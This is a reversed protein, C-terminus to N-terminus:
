GTIVDGDAGASGTILAAVRVAGGEGEVGSANRRAVARTGPDAAHPARLLAPVRDPDRPQRAGGRRRHRRCARDGSRRPTGGIGQDGEDRAPWAPDRPDLRGRFALHHRPVAVRDRPRQDGRFGRRRPQRQREHRSTRLGIEPRSPTVEHSSAATMAAIPILMWSEPDVWDDTRRTKAAKRTEKRKMRVLARRIRLGRTGQHGPLTVVSPPSWMWWMTKPITIISIPPVRPKASVSCAGHTWSLATTKPM